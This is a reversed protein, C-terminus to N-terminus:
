DIVFCIDGDVEIQGSPSKSAADRDSKSAPGIYENSMWHTLVGYVHQGRGNEVLIDELQNKIFDSDTAYNRVLQVIAEELDMTPWQEAQRAEDTYLGNPENWQLHELISLRIQEMDMPDSNKYGM